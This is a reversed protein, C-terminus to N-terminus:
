AGGSGTDVTNKAADESNAIALLVDAHCPEGPRCWCGLNKGRLERRAEECVGPHAEMFLRFNRVAEDRTAVTFVDMWTKPVAPKTGVRWHNGWRGPRSVVVTNPPLKWGKKRSLQIRQPTTQLTKM